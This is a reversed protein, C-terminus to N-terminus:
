QSLRVSLMENAIDEFALKLQAANSAHFYQTPVSACAELLDKVSNPIATGFSITFVELKQAKAEDCAESTYKDALATDANTHYIGDPSLTNMGDTMVVLARRIPRGGKGTSKAETFPAQKTLVRTGWIVGEPIYTEGSPTLQDIKSKLLARSDTLTQLEVSGTVELLGPIKSSYTRDQVNLPYTRSGVFGQWTILNGTTVDNCINQEPGYVGDCMKNCSADYNVSYASQAPTCSTVGDSTSCSGPVAPYNVTNAPYCVTRCNTEGILPKELNCVKTTVRTDIDKPVNLWPSGKRSAGVNVYQAFPVIGGNIDAGRDKADFMTDIFDHAASQLAAMKGDAAMSGTTDLSLVFDLTESFGLNAKSISNYEQNKQGFYGMLYTNVKTKSELTFETKAKNFSLKKATISIASNGDLFAQITALPPQKRNEKFYRAALLVAADNADQMETKISLTNSLDLGFAVGAMLAPMAFALIMGFNGSRNGLFRSSLSKM